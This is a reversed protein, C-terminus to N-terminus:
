PSVPMEEIELLTRLLAEGKDRLWGPVAGGHETFGEKHLWYWFFYASGTSGFHADCRAKWAEWTEEKTWVKAQLDRLLKLGGTIFATADEVCGCGCFGMVQMVADIAEERDEYIM